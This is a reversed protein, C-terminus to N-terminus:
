VQKKAMHKVAGEAWNALLRLGRHESAASDGEPTLPMRLLKMLVELEEKELEMWPVDVGEAERSIGISLSFRDYDILPVEDEYIVHM